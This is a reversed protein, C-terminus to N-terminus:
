LTSLMCANGIGTPGLSRAVVYLAGRTRDIVPTSLIGLNGQVTRVTKDSPPAPLAGENTLRVQWLLGGDAGPDDADLAYVLNNTTAVYLVNRVRGGVRLSSVILPQAYL